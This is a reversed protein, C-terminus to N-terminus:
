GDSDFKNYNYLLYMGIFKKTHIPIAFNTRLGKECTMNM